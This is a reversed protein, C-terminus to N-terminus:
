WTRDIAAAGTRADYSLTSPLREELRALSALSGAFTLAHASSSAAPAAGEAPTSNAAAEPLGRLEEGLFPYLSIAIMGFVLALFLLTERM